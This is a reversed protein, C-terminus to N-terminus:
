RRKAEDGERTCHAPDGGYIADLNVKLEAFAGQVDGIKRNRNRPVLSGWCGKDGREAEKTSIFCLLSAKIYSVVRMTWSRM